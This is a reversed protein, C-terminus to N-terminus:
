EKVLLEGVTVIAVDRESSPPTGEEIRQWLRALSPKMLGSIRVTEGTLDVARDWNGVQAYVEIFLLREAPDNPYDGSAFALDALREAELWNGEQRALDAKQYYYCWGHAPEPGFISTQPVATEKDVQIPALNSFEAADRMIGSLTPNLPDLDPDLVRFCAPPKFDFVVLQDANGKFEAALYGQLIPQGKVLKLARTTRVSADYFMYDMLGGATASRDDDYIWNLPAALSNDSFYRLPMQSTVLATGSQLAPIRWSMQWFLTRQINWDRQYAAGTLFQFGISLATLSALFMQSVVRGGPLLLVLASILLSAGFIFPLTFRDNPFGLGVPLDTVWFPLGGALLAALSVLVMQISTSKENNRANSSKVIFFALMTFGLLVVGAWLVFYRMGLESLVPLHFIDSWASFTVVGLDKLVTGALALFGSIPDATLRSLLSPQYNHTQYSFIVTRWLVVALLTMLYPLWAKLVAFLKRRSHFNFEASALSLLVPRLLELVFFYELSLLNIFSLLVAAAIFVIKRRPKRLALLSFALSWFYAAYAVFFHGYMLAISSQRFGPYVLFLLGSWLAATEAKPWVLRVTMWLGCAALWHLSLGFIQWVWPYDGGLLSTTLRYILGWFPRNTEFYLALGNPGLRNAIWLIPWEDWFYGLRNFLLGYSLGAVLLFHLPAAQVPIQLSAFSRRLRIM